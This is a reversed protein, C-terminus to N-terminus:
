REYFGGKPSKSLIVVDRIDRGAEMGYFVQNADTLYPSSIM